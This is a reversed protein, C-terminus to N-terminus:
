NAKETTPCYFELSTPTLYATTAIQLDDSVPGNSASLEIQEVPTSVIYLYDIRYGNVTINTLALAEDGGFSYVGYDLTGNEMILTKIEDYVQSFDGSKQEFYETGGIIPAGTDQMNDFEWHYEIVGSDEPTDPEEPEPPPTTTKVECTIDFPLEEFPSAVTSSEGYSHINTNAVRMITCDGKPNDLIKKGVQEVVEEALVYWIVVPQSAAKQQKIYKKFEDATMNTRFYLHGSSNFFCTGEAQTSSVTPLGVFHSCMVTKTKDAGWKSAQGNLYLAKGYATSSGFTEDGTLTYYGIKRKLVGSILDKTDAVDSIARLFDVNGSKSYIQEENNANVVKIEESYSEYVAGYSYYDEAEIKVKSGDYDTMVGKGVTPEYFKRGVEDYYGIVGDSIRECPILCLRDGGFSSFRGVKITGHIIGDFKSSTADVSTSGVLLDVSATFDKESWSSVTTGFGTCGTPTVNINYRTGATIASYYTGDAYRLYKGGSTTTLYISYNDTADATTYCGILNCAKNPTFTISLYDSGKLKFGTIQFYTDASMKIGELKAYGSPLHYFSDDIVNYRGNSFQPYAPETLTPTSKQEMVGYITLSSISNKKMDDIRLKNIGQLIVQQWFEQVVVKVKSLIEGVKNLSIFNLKVKNLNIRNM